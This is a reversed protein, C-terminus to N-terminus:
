RFPSYSIQYIFIGFSENLIEVGYLKASAGAGYENAAAITIDFPLIQDTFWPLAREKFGQVTSLPVNDLTTTNTQNVATPIDQVDSSNFVGTADTVLNYDQQLSSDNQLSQYHTYASIRILMYVSVDGDSTENEEMMEERRRVRLSLVAWSAPRAAKDTSVM